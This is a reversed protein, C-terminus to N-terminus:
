RSLAEIVDTATLMRNGLLRFAVDASHGLIYAGAIAADIPKLRQALMALIVGTLVDGSGGKALGPNGFPSYFLANGDCIITTAGKLLTTAGTHMTLAVAADRASRSVDEAPCDLLRAAEGYHPTIVVNSHLLSKLEPSRSLANLADADLVCPKKSRLVAEVVREVGPGDGMGPGAAVCDAYDLADALAGDEIRSYDAFDSRVIAEPIQRLYEAADAPCLARLLGCGGRLAAQATLSVAGKYKSSGAVVLGRGNEGKYSNLKRPPLLRKVYAEDVLYEREAGGIEVASDVIRALSVDGAAERGPFLLHGRKYFQLAVTSNARVCDGMCEGTDANIGSPIDVAVIRSGARNICEVASLFVGNLPRSLGTGFVADVITDFRHAAFYSFVDEQTTLNFCPLEKERIIRLYHAADGRIGEDPALLIAEVRAGAGHLLTLLALGDGGNNGCGCAILISSDSTTLASFVARAANLMLEASSIGDRAVVRRDFERMQASTLVRNM